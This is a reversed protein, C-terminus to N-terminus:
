WSRPDQQHHSLFKYLVSRMFAKRNAIPHWLRLMKFDGKEDTGLWVKQQKISLFSYSSKKKLFVYKQLVEGALAEALSYSQWKILGKQEDRCDVEEVSFMHLVRKGIQLQGFLSIWCFAAWAFNHEENRDIVWHFGIEIRRRVEVCIYVSIIKAQM